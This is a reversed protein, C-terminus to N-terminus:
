LVSRHSWGLGTPGHASCFLPLPLIFSSSRLFFSLFFFLPIISHDCREKLTCERKIVKRLAIPLEPSPEDPVETSTSSDAPPALPSHGTSKKGHRVYVKLPAETAPTSSVQPDVAPQDVHHLTQLAALKQNLEQITQDRPDPKQIFEGETTANYATTGRPKFDKPKLHPNLEWCRDKTHRTKGCHTCKLKAREEPTLFKRQSGKQNKSEIAMAFRDPTVSSTNTGRRNSEGRVYNYVTQLPPLIERGLVQVRQPENDPNLGSLFEFVRRQDRQKHMEEVTKPVPQYHDLEEWKARLKGWYEEITM